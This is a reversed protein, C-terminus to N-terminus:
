DFQSYIKSYKAEIIKQKQKANEFGQPFWLRQQMRIIYRINPTLLLV